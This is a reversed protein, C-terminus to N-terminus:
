TGSGVVFNQAPFTVCECRGRGDNTESQALGNVRTVLQEWPREVCIVTTAEHDTTADRPADLILVIALKKHLNARFFPSSTM